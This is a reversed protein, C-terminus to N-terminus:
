RWASAGWVRIVDAWQGRAFAIEAELSALTERTGRRHSVGQSTAFTKYAEMEAVASDLNGTWAYGTSRRERGALTTDGPARWPPSPVPTLGRAMRKLNQLFQQYGPGAGFSAIAEDVTKWAM